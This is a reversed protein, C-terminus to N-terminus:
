RHGATNYLLGGEGRVAESILFTRVEKPGSVAHFGTPHFQVFEMGNLKASARSAMAMGDGTSVGPNTTM